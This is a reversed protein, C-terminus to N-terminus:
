ESNLHLVTEELQKYFDEGYKRILADKLYVYVPLGLELGNQCAPACIDWKDYLLFEMGNEPNEKVRIPYLQCSIPKRFDYKGDKWALEIACHLVGIKDKIAYICSGDEHLPTGPKKIEKFYSWCENVQLYELSKASLYPELEERILQLTDVESPELPAGYDGEECCVGKCKSIKCAFDANIVDDAILVNKILIM